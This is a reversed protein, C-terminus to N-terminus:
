TQRIPIMVGHHLKYVYVFYPKALIKKLRYASFVNIDIAAKVHIIDDNLTNKITFNPWSLHLKPSYWNGQVSLENISYPVNIHYYSPCMPLQMIDLLACMKGCTIELCIKSRTKFQYRKWLFIVICTILVCLLIFNAKDWTMQISFGITSYEQTPKNNTHYIFSPVDTVLAQAKQVREIILLGASLKRIKFITWVFFAICLGTAVTVIYLLINDTTPWNDDLKIQGDLLPEAITQFIVKDDKATQAMKALSLHSKTDAALIDKMKHQYFKLEPLTINVPKNFITDAFINDVYSDDFFHQLLALNVPHIITINDSHHHCSALRSPFFHSSTSISCRCPLKFLCFDCGEVMRHNDICELSLLPTRYVLLTNPSLEMIKPKVINQLFRFDCLSKVKVKDNAFLALICSTTTVPTLAISSTCYKIENGYCSSLEFDQVPAYYQKNSTVLFYPSLDLLQTAHDSSVNVPVPLSIVKYLTLPDSFYSVPLKITIYISTGNRAFLFKCNSYISKTDKLALHFGHFKTQLLSRIDKVTSEMIPQPILLPSLQGNVLSNIGLKFEDLAHNLSNSTKVQDILLDMMYNFSQELNLTSTHLESQILKIELRNNTIGSMLNDMRSNATEIFSSLHDEHQTLAKALNTAMKNLKNIHTALINVDDMTATNFLSKSLTGIFPLLSRRSRSKHIPAQPIQQEVFQNTSNIRAVTEARVSDLQALFHSMMKCSNNDKKSTALRPVSLNPLNLEFTHYWIDSAIIVKQKQQFIVGYNLRQFMELTECSDVLTFLVLASLIWWGM